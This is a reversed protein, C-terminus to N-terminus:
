DTPRAPGPAPPEPNAGQADGPVKGISPLTVDIAIGLARLVQLAKGLQCTPKGKELDVIFRVGVGATMALCRGLGGAVFTFRDFGRESAGGQWEVEVDELWLHFRSLVPRTDFAWQAILDKKPGGPPAAM